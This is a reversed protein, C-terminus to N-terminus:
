ENPLCFIIPDIICRTARVRECVERFSKRAEKTAGLQRISPLLCASDYIKEGDRMLGEFVPLPLNPECSGADLIRDKLQQRSVFLWLPMDEHEVDVVVDFDTMETEPEDGPWRSIGRVELCGLQVVLRPVPPRQEEPLAPIRGKLLMLPWPQTSYGVPSLPCEIKALSTTRFLKIQYEDGSEDDCLPILHDRFDRSDQLVRITQRSLNALTLLRSQTQPDNYLQENSVSDEFAKVWDNDFDMQFEHNEVWTWANRTNLKDYHDEHQRLHVRHTPSRVNEYADTNILSTSSATGLLCPTLITESRSLWICRTKGDDGPGASCEVSPESLM